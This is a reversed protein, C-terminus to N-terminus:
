VPSEQTAKMTEPDWKIGDYAHRMGPIFRYLGMYPTNIPSEGTFLLADYLFGGFTCGFFPAVM